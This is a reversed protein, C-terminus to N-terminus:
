CRAFARCGCPAGRAPSPKPLAWRPIPGEGRAPSPQPSPSQRSAAHALGVAGDHGAPMGRMGPGEGALPSPLPVASDEVIRGDHIRVVRKAQAAVKPDHTILIVTHGADALESLLKMVDMGTASDLAGTPEDALIVQGGNMLARAISIRQQQGGSLQQPFHGLREGLGLRALLSAARESRASAEVGAYVAPVQVNHSADLTPILHYGQFVFGFAERRLQALQDASFSAINKGAFRYSGSSPQDLCGLIHMLTSKGSGSAGVIAIFEGTGISLDIGHLVEVAPTGDAGGYSKRIALLEILPVAEARYAADMM